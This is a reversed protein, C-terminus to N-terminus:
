RNPKNKPFTFQIGEWFSPLFLANHSYEPFFTWGLRINPYSELAQILARIKGSHFSPEPQFSLYVTLTRDRDLEQQIQRLVEGDSYWISPDYLHFIQFPHNRGLIYAGFYGGYSHGVFMNEENTKFHNNVTPILENILYEYFIAAGGSNSDNYDTSDTITGDYEIRTQSFTLDKGRQSRWDKHPIGVIIYQPILENGGFDYTIPRILDMRWEADLVYM